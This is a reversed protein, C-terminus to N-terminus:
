FSTWTEKTRALDRTAGFFCSDMGRSSSLAASVPACSALTRWVLSVKGMRFIVRQDSEVVTRCQPRQKCYRILIM